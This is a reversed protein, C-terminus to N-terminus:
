SGALGPAVLRGDIMRDAPDRQAGASEKDRLAHSGAFKRDELRRIVRDIDICLGISFENKARCDRM